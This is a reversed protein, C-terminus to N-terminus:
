NCYKQMDNCKLGFISSLDKVTSKPKTLGVTLYNQSNVKLNSKTNILTTTTFM